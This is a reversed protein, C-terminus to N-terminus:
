IRWVLMILIKQLVTFIIVLSMKPTLPNLDVTILSMKKIKISDWTSLSTCNYVTHKQHRMSNM